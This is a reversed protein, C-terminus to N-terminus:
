HAFVADADEIEGPAFQHVVVSQQRSQGAAPHRGIDGVEGAVLQQAHGPDGTDGMQASGGGFALFVAGNHGGVLQGVVQEVAIDGVAYIQGGNGLGPGTVAADADDVFVLRAQNRANRSEGGGRGQVNLVHDVFGAAIHGVGHQSSAVPATGSVKCCSRAATGPMMRTRM